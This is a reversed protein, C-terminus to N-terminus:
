EEMERIKKEKIALRKEVQESIHQQKEKLIQIKKL